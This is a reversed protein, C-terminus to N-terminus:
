FPEEVDGNGNYLFDFPSSISTTATNPSQTSSSDKSKSMFEFDRVLIETIHHKVGDKDYERTTLKGEIYIKDGKSLYKGAIQALQNKFVVNHWETKDPIERGDKTKFGKDTTAISINCVAGGNDFTKLKPDSGVNGVLIVKNISM